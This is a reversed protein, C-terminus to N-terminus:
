YVVMFVLFPLFSFFVAFRILFFRFGLILYVFFRFIFVVFVWIRFVAFSVAFFVVNECFDGYIDSVFAFVLRM